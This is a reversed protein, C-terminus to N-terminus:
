PPQFSQRRSANTNRRAPMHVRATKDAERARTRPRTSQSPALEPPGDRGEPVITSKKRVDQGWSTLSSEQLTPASELGTQRFLQLVFRWFVSERLFFCLRGGRFVRACDRFCACRTGRCPNQIWVGSPRVIPGTGAFNKYSFCCCLAHSREDM